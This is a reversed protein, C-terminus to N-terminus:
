LDAGSVEIKGLHERVSDVRHLLESVSKPDLKAEGNRLKDLTTELSHCIAELKGFGLFGCNGKITHISRFVSNLRELDEPTKELLVLDSETTDLNEYAEVLFLKVEESLGHESAM